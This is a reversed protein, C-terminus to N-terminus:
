RCVSYNPWPSSHKLASLQRCSNHFCYFDNWVLIHMAWMVVAPKLCLMEHVFELFISCKNLQNWQLISKLIINIYIVFKLLWSHPLLGKEFHCFLLALGTKLEKVTRNIFDLYSLFTFKVKDCIDALASGYSYLLWPTNKKVYFNYVTLPQVNIGNTNFTLSWYIIFGQDVLM